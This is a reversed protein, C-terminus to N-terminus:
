DRGCYREILTQIRKKAAEPSYRNKVHSIGSCSLKKWLEGCNYLRVVNSVFSGEDDAILVNEEHVLGMGEAGVSTTVVPLGVSMSHGIKGKIGSGYRLPCVFVRSRRFYPEVDKQYGTVIIDTNALAKICPPLNSGVIYFKIDPLIKKINPWISNVFWMIADVNPPHVFGGIFMLYKRGNLSSTSVPLAHINSLIEVNGIGEKELLSKEVPSVVLTVDSNRALDLEIKKSKQANKMLMRHGIVETQRMERLYHLDITDFFIPANTLKRVTKHCQWAIDRRCIWVLDIYKGNKTLYKGLTNRGYIVEVGMQQLQSTYPERRCLDNPWFTVKHGLENLIRIIWSMRVSGSDKDHEPVYHDIILIRKEKGRERALYIKEVPHFQKSLADQWKKQFKGKNIVQFKKIGAFASRGCTVGEYHLVRSFPQFMVKFGWNRVAFALDTDEYYAPVYRMDLGGLKDLIDKRVVIAAGSCYDVERLYSYEPKDPDDGRGYNWGSADKWIIGGAEQLTGNPYILKAGVLGTSPGLSFPRLLSDLWGDTVKTDNNLLLIYKGQAQQIGLNCAVVFGKAESNTVVKINQCQNLMQSTDDKSGDDVAIVEYNINSTNCLISKLCTFSYLCKNHMPIVISVTVKDFQPFTLPHWNSESAANIISKSECKCFKEAARHWCLAIGGFKYVLWIKALRERDISSFFWWLTRVLIFFNHFLHPEEGGFREVARSLCLSIGGCKYTASIKAFKRKQPSFLLWLLARTIITFVRLIKKAKTIMKKTQALVGLFDNFSWSLHSAKGKKKAELSALLEAALASNKLALRELNLINIKAQKRFDDKNAWAQQAKEM